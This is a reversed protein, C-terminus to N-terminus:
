TSGPSVSFTRPLVNRIRDRNIFFLRWDGMAIYESLGLGLRNPDNLTQEIDTLIATKAREVEEKTPPEKAFSELTSVMIDRVEDVNGDKALTAAYFKYGPDHFEFVNGSVSTAKKTEVLLKYLKSSPGGAVM